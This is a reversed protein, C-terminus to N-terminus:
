TIDGEEEDAVEGVAGFRKRFPTSERGSVHSSTCVCLM